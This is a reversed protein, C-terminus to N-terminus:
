TSGAGKAPWPPKKSWRKPWRKAGLLGLGALAESGVRSVRLPTPPPPCSVNGSASASLNEELGVRLRAGGAGAACLGRLAPATGGERPMKRGMAEGVTGPPPRVGTGLGSGVWVGGLQERGVEAAKGRGPGAEM